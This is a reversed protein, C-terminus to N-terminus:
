PSTLRWFPDPESTTLAGTERFGQNNHWGPWAVGGAISCFHVKVQLLTDWYPYLNGDFKEMRGVLKLTEDAVLPDKKKMAEQLERGRLDLSRMAVVTVAAM